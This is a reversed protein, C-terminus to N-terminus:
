FYSIKQTEDNVNFEYPIFFEDLSTMPFIDECYPVIAKFRQIIGDIDSSPAQIYVKHLSMSRLIQIDIDRNFTPFSYGIVVLVNTKSAIELAYKKGKDSITDNEWAFNINPYSDIEKTHNGYDTTIEKILEQEKEKTLNSKYDTLNHVKRRFENKYKFGGCTGNLKVICFNDTNISLNKNPYINMKEDVVHINNTPIFSAASMEMQYDYNWSLIKINPPFYLARDKINLLSAFFSDYRLDIGNMSQELTLVASLLGKLKILKSEGSLFLKKAFTDISVHERSHKDLWELDAILGKLGNDRYHIGEARVIEGFKNVYKRIVDPFKKVVPLVPKDPTGASAGAGILYTITKNTSM